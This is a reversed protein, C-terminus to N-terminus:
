LPTAAKSIHEADRAAAQRIIGVLDTHTVLREWQDLDIYRDRLRTDSALTRLAQITAHQLDYNSVPASIAVSERRRFVFRKDEMNRSARKTTLFLAAQIERNRVCARLDIWGVVNDLRWWLPSNRYWVANVISSKEFAEPSPYASVYRRRLNDIERHIRSIVEDYYQIRSRLYIPILWLIQPEYDDDKIGREVAERFNVTWGREGRRSVM